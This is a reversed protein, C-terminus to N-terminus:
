TVVYNNKELIMYSIQNSANTYVQKGISTVFDKNLEEAKIFYKEFEAKTRFVEYGGLSEYELVDDGLLKRLLALGQFRKEALTIVSQKPWKEFDDVLESVSGFCCFGANKTSAGDPLFGKEVVIVESKPHQRKLFLASTLGVIGSGVICFDPKNIFQEREWYSLM